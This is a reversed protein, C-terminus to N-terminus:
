LSHIYTVCLHFWYEEAQTMVRLSTVITVVDSGTESSWCLRGFRGRPDCLTLHLVNQVGKNTKIKTLHFDTEVTSRNMDHGNIPPLWFM